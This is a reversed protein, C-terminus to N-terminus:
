LRPLGRLATALASRSPGVTQNLPLPGEHFTTNLLPNKLLVSQIGESSADQVAKCDTPALFTQSPKPVMNLPM